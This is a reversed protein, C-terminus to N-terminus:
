MLVEEEYEEVVKDYEQEDFTVIELPANEIHMCHHHHLAEQKIM